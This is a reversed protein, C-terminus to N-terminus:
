QERLVALVNHGNYFYQSIFGVEEQGKISIKCESEIIQNPQLEARIVDENDEDDTFQGKDSQLYKELLPRSFIFYKVKWRGDIKDYVAFICPSLSKEVFRWATSEISSEYKDMLMLISQFSLPMSNSEVTFINGKYILDAAFRNAEIELESKTSYSMDYDNCVHYYKKRHDPLIYHAIEHFASFRKRKENDCENVAVAKHEYSLIARGKSLNSDNFETFNFCVMKLKLFDLINAASTPGEENQSTETLLFQLIERKEPLDGIFKKTM